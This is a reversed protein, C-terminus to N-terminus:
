PYPREAEPPPPAKEEKPTEVPPAAPKEEEQGLAAMPLILWSFILLAFGFRLCGWVSKKM